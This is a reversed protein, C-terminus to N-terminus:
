SRDVHGTLFAVDFARVELAIDHHAAVRVTLPRRPAREHTADRQGHL